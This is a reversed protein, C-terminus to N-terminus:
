SYVLSWIKRLNNNKLTVFLLMNYKLKNKTWVFKPIKRFSIKM